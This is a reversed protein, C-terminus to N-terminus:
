NLHPSATLSATLTATNPIGLLEQVIKDAESGVAVGSLKNIKEMLDSVDTGQGYAMTVALDRQGALAALIHGPVGADKGWRIFTHRLAHLGRQELGVLQLTPYWHSRTFNRYRLLKGTVSSFVVGHENGEPPFLKLHEEVENQIPLPIPVTRVSAKTKPPAFEGTRRNVQRRVYIVLGVGSVNEIDDRVLGALEGIRLGCYAGILVLARYRREITEALVEVEDRTFPEVPKPGEQKSKPVPVGDAPNSKIVGLPKVAFDLVHNLAILYSKMTSQALGAKRLGMLWQHVTNSDIKDVQLLGISHIIQAHYLEKYWDLTGDRLNAPASQLYTDAVDNLYVKAKKRNVPISQGGKAEVEKKMAADRAEKMKKFGNLGASHGNCKGFFIAGECMECYYTGRWYHNGARTTYAKAHAM